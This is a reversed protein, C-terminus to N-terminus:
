RYGANPYLLRLGALFVPTYVYGFLQWGILLGIFSYTRLTHGFQNWRHAVPEPMFLALVSFGDLPPFPLLNFVGLLLNLSFLVSVLTAVGEMVGPQTADVLHISSLSEPARFAGTFLGAHICLAALLVLAFNAGPGALSMWAARRPHRQQWIPDFPASAWGILGGGMVLSILPVLVMGFPERQIHPVPNLSVQGGLFATDDGGLKAALAHAAEHCTTSFLFVIYRLLGLTIVDPGLPNM